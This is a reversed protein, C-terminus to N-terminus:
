RILEHFMSFQQALINTPISWRQPSSSRGTIKEIDTKFSLDLTCVNTLRFGMKFTVSAFSYLLCSKRRKSSRWRAIIHFSSPNRRTRLQGCSPRLAWTDWTLRNRCSNVISFTSPLNSSSVNNWKSSLFVLQPTICGKQVATPSSLARGTCASSDRVTSM